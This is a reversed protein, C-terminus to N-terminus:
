PKKGISHWKASDSQITYAEGANIALTNAADILETGNGALTVVGTGINKIVYVQTSAGGALPLTLTITGTGLITDDNVTITYNASKTVLAKRTGAGKLLGIAVLSGDAAMQVMDTVTDPTSQDVVGFHLTSGAVTGTGTTYQKIAGTGATNAVVQTHLLGYKGATINDSLAKLTGTPGAIMTDAQMQKMYTAGLLNRSYVTSGAVVVTDWVDGAAIPFRIEDIYIGSAVSSWRRRVRETGADNVYDVRTVGGSTTTLPGVFTIRALQADDGATTVRVVNNVGAQGAYAGGDVRIDQVGVGVCRIMDRSGHYPNVVNIARAGDLLLGVAGIEFHPERMVVTYVNGAVSVAVGGFLVPEASSHAFRLGTANATADLTITSGVITGIQVVEATNGKGVLLLNGVSLGAASAVTFSTGGASPASTLTTEVNQAAEPMDAVTLVHKFNQFTIGHYNGSTFRIFGGYVSYAKCNILTITDQQQAPLTRANMDFLVTKRGRAECNIFTGEYSDDLDFLIGGYPMTGGVAYGKGGILLINEHNFERVIRQHIIGNTWGLDKILEVSLNRVAFGDTNDTSNGFRIAPAVTPVLVSGRGDGEIIVVGLASHTGTTQISVLQDLRYRYGAPFYLRGGGAAVLANAAKQVAVSCDVLGKPDVTGYQTVDFRRPFERSNVAGELAQLTNGVHWERRKM